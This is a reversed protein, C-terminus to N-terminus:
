GRGDLTENRSHYFYLYALGIPAIVISFSWCISIIIFKIILMLIANVIFVNDGILFGVISEYVFRSYPYLLACIISWFWILPHGNSSMSIMLISFVVGFFLQRFYYSANLGGFTKKIWPNM